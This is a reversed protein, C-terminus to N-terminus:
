LFWGTIERGMMWRWCEFRWCEVDDEEENRDASSDSALLENCVGLVVIVEGESGPEVSADGM